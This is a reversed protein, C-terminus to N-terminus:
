FNTSNNDVQIITGSNSQKKIVQELLMTLRCCKNCDHTLVGSCDTKQEMCGEGASQDQVGSHKRIKWGTMLMINKTWFIERPDDKADIWLEKVKKGESIIFHM